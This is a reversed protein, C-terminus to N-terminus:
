GFVELQFFYEVESGDERGRLTMEHCLDALQAGIVPAGCFFVGVRRRRKKDRSFLESVEKYHEDFIRPFDPRGFHTPAILGTLPSMPQSETRHQELLWRFIHQNIDTRKKTLHNHIRVDLNPSHSGSSIHNLLDSFWSLYNKDRVIWHFDVRRYMALDIHRDNPLHSVERALSPRHSNRPVALTNSKEAEPSPSDGAKSLQRDPDALTDADKESETPIVSRSRSRGPVISALSRRRSRRALREENSENSSTSDRRSTAWRHDERHQLDNLIGSFPTVGIGAGVIITQDFDYFRQAPAGYPGDIGVYNLDTLDRLKGTWDGDTKIHLQMERGVCTSITFPHWQFFSLQPVQLFIYQGAEYNWIKRKPITCTIQVTEDDLVELRAPVRWFGSLIRTTREIIILITPFALVFGLVPYQLLALSGHAMLLGIFPFMLLHGIQFIEYSWKRIYPMSLCSITYLIGLATLGSWGPLSRVYVVYPRPVADPGLLVGVANQRNPRSGYVFTGSLHGIAHTTALVLAAISIKIHFSQSRDWNIFRSIYYFRRMFTSYWRSMSLLLFFLTPYLAGASFKALAVGWGFAAQVQDDLAYKLCQWIGLGLQLGVVMMLFIYEPGQVEWAARIRRGWGVNELYHDNDDENKKEQQLSPIKWSKVINKFDDVPIKDKESSMMARLFEHRQEDKRSPHNFSFEEPHPPLEKYVVDLKHELESYSICGDQDKDLGKVFDDIEKDNLPQIDAM